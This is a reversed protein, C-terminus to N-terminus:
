GRLTTTVPKQLVFETFVTSAQLTPAAPPKLSPEKISLRYSTHYLVGTFHAEMLIETITRRTSEKRGDIPQCFAGRTFTFWMDSSSLLHFPVSEGLLQEIQYNNAV